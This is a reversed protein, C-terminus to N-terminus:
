IPQNLWWSTSFREVFPLVEQLQVQASSPHGTLHNTVPTYTLYLSSVFSIYQPQLENALRESVEQIMWTHVIMPGMTKTNISPDGVEQIRM